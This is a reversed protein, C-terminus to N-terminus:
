FRGRVVEAGDIHLYKFILETAECLLRGSRNGPLCDCVRNLNFRPEGFSILAVELLYPGVATWGYTM